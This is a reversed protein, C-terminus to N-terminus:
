WEDSDERFKRKQLEDLRPTPDQRVVQFTLGLSTLIRLLKTFGLESLRGRELQSIKTRSVGSVKSLKEQTWRLDKRREQIKKGIADM